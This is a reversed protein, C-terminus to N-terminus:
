TATSNESQKSYDPCKKSNLVLSAFESFQNLILNANNIIEDTLSDQGGRLFCSAVNAAKAGLIDADTDGVMWVEEPNLQHEKLAINFM